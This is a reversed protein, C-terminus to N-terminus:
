FIIVALATALVHGHQEYFSFKTKVKILIILMM